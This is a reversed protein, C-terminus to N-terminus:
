REKIFENLTENIENRITINFFIRNRRLKGQLIELVEYNNDFLNNCQSLVNSWVKIRTIDMFQRIFGITDNVEKLKM